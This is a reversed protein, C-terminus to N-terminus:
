LSWGLSEYFLGTTVNYYRGENFLPRNFVIIQDIGSSDIDHDLYASFAAVKSSESNECRENPSNLAEVAKLWKQQNEALSKLLDFQTQQTWDIADSMQTRAELASVRKYLDLFLIERSADDIVLVEPLKTVCNNVRWLIIAVFYELYLRTIIM